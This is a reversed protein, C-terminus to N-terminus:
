PSSKFASIRQSSGIEAAKAQLCANSVPRGELREQELFEFMRQDLEPSLPTRGMNLKRRKANAGINMRQLENYKQDWEQVRKRDISSNERQRTSTTTM